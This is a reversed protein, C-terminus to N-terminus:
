LLKDIIKLNIDNLSNVILDAKSFDHDKTFKNPVAIVKMDASKGSSVGSESDELVLCETPRLNLKEAARLYIDPAPKGNIVDECTVFVDFYSLIKLKPFIVNIDEMFSLTGVAIKFNNKKLLRLLQSLGFMPKVTESKLVQQYYQQRKQKLIDLDENIKYDIKLQACSGTKGVSHILGNKHCIPKKGYEELLLKFGKSQIPETDIMLGDMDFIVAKIM